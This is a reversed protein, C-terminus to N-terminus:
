IEFELPLRGIVGGQSRRGEPAVSLRRIENTRRYTEQLTLGRVAAWASPRTAMGEGTCKKRSAEGLDPLKGLGELKTLASKRPGLLEPIWKVDGGGAKTEPARM